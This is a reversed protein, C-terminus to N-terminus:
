KAAPVISFSRLQWPKASAKLLAATLPVPTPNTEIHTIESANAIGGHFQISFDNANESLNWFRTIIGHDIGDESPKLAWLLVDPNTSSLLSFSTEPYANGGTVQGAVLPNQDELALRMSGAASGNRTAHLAFRQLFYKDGGQDAIGLSPGDVQGGALVSIQPTSTDLESIGNAITSHGLKMFADDANSLTIGIGDKGAMFVYHNLTLWDLRSYKAAYDGGPQLRAHNIAGIEEHWVEPSQLAFSFAWTKLDSFNATIENRIAIRDLDRFLTIQTTHAVPGSAHAEVTVSVPGSNIVKLTGSGPGLDNVSRGDITAVLEQGGTKKSVISEIAGHDNVRIRYDANELAGGDARLSKPPASSKGPIVEYVRYGVSPVESALIRLLRRHSGDDAAGDIFQHLVTKGTTLDVVHIDEPGTYSLDAADTRMWNLPNFVYYRAAEGKRAIMGGLAQRSADSLTDVYSTIRHAVSRQWDRRISRPLVHSDATWDHEWFLGFDAWAQDRAAKFQEPFAPQKLSVLTELAEASRLEETARRVSSSVEQMSASYMDWENGFSGQFSPLQAGYTSEFDHFFDEENSVIVERDPRTLSKALQVIRDNMTSLNDGGEGFLGFIRYPYRARFEPDQFLPVDQGLTAKDLELYTGPQYGGIKKYISYWKLLIRSGDPGEWWYIEHPRWHDLTPTLKTACNCVGRWSYRAGSGAWLAGIGNPLTQDEMAIAMDLKLGYRREVSGAYYMGRLVAETPMGGYTSVAFNMPMSFHGDSLRAVLRDVQQQDRNKEWIWMWLSGDFNWRSQFDKAEEGTKDTLDLYYDTMDLIAKRYDDENATWVYDTHDDPALYIKEKQAHVRTQNFLILFAFVALIALKRTSQRSCVESISM